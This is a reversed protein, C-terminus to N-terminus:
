VRSSRPGRISVAAWQAAGVFQAAAIAEAVGAGVDVGEEIGEGAAAFEQGAVGGGQEVEEVLVVGAFEVRGEGVGQAMACRSSWRARARRVGGGTGMSRGALERGM